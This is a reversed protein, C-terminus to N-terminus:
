VIYVGFSVSYKYNLPLNPLIDHSIRCQFTVFVFVFQVMFTDVVYYLQGM